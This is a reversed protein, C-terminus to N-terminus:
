ASVGLCGAAADPGDCGDAGPVADGLGVAEDEWAAAWAQQFVQAGGNLAHGFRKKPAARLMSSPPEGVDDGGRQCTAPHDLLDLPARPARGRYNLSLVANRQRNLRGDFVIM